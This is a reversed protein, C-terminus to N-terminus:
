EKNPSTPDINKYNDYDVNRAGKSAGSTRVPDAKPTHTKGEREKVREGAFDSAAGLLESRRKRQDDTLGKKNNTTSNNGKTTSTTKNGGGVPNGGRSTTSGLPKGGQGYRRRRTSM